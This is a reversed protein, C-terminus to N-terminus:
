LLPLLTINGNELGICRDTACQLNCSNALKGSCKGLCNIICAAFKAGSLSQCPVRCTSYCNSDFAAHAYGACILMLVAIVAVRRMSNCELM